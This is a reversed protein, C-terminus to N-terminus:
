TLQTLNDNEGLCGMEIAKAIIKQQEPTLVEDATKIKGSIEVRTKYNKHHHKLWFIIATMNQDRIASILQSEAMDNVIRAGDVLAQDAEERFKRSSKRWRYFTARSIGTKECAIQIIPTKKIQELLTGKQKETKM